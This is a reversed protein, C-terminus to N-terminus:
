TRAAEFAALFTLGLPEQIKQRVAEGLGLVTSVANRNAGSNRFALLAGL